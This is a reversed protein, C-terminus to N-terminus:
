QAFLSDHLSVNNASDFAQQGVARFVEAAVLEHKLRPHLLCCTLDLVQSRFTTPNRNALTQRVLPLPHQGVVVAAHKGCVQKFTHPVPYLSLHHVGGHIV